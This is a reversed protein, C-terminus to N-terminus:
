YKNPSYTQPYEANLRRAEEALGNVDASGGAIPMYGQRPNLKQLFLFGLVLAIVEVLLLVETAVELVRMHTRLLRTVKTFCGSDWNSTDTDSHDYCVNNNDSAVEKRSYFGCCSLQKEISNVSNIELGSWASHALEPIDQRKYYATVSIAIQSLFLLAIVTLYLKILCRSERAAGCCGFFSLFFIFVGVCIAARQVFPSQLEAVAGLHDSYVGCGILVGGVIWFFLNLTYLSFQSFNKGSSM